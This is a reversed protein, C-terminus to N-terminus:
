FNRTQASDTTIPALIIPSFSHGFDRVIRKRTSVRQEVIHFRIVSLKMAAWGAHILITDALIDITALTMDVVFILRESTVHAFLFDFGSISILLLM